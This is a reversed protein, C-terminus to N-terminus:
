PSAVVERVGRTRPVRRLPDPERAGSSQVDRQHRVAKRRDMVPIRQAGVSVWGSVLPFGAPRVRALPCPLVVGEGRLGEAPQEAAGSIRPVHIRPGIASPRIHGRGDGRLGRCLLHGLFSPNGPGGGRRVGVEYIARSDM